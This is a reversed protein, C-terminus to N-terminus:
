KVRLLYGIKRVVKIEVASDLQKIKKRLRSLHQRLVDDSVFDDCDWVRDILYENSLPVGEKKILLELIQAEKLPLHVQDTKSSLTLMKPNFELTSLQYINEVQISGGRRTIAEIRAVLEEREFPKTLYDDAGCSLGKVKEETQGCATLMMIPTQIKARRLGNLIEFGNMEPLNVDLLIVDYVDTLGLQLGDAGNHVIEVQHGEGLLIKETIMAIHEEDEVLLVRM